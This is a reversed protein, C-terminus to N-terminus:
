ADKDPLAEPAKGSFAGREAFCVLRVLRRDIAHIHLRLLLFGVGGLMESPRMPDSRCVREGYRKFLENRM